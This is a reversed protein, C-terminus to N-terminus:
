LLKAFIQRLFGQIELDYMYMKSTPVFSVEYIVEVTLLLTRQIKGRKIYIVAKISAVAVKGYGVGM